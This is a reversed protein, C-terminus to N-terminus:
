SPHNLHIVNAIEGMADAIDPGSLEDEEGVEMDFLARALKRCNEQTAGVGMQISEKDGILAICSGEYDSLLESRTNIVSGEDYGLSETALENTASILADMWDSINLDGM